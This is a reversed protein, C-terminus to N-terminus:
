NRLHILLSFDFIYRISNHRINSFFDRFFTRLDLFFPSPLRCHVKRNHLLDVPHLDVIKLQTCAVRYTVIDTQQNTPRDTPRNTPRDTSRDWKVKKANKLDKLTSLQLKIYKMLTFCCNPDNKRMIQKM